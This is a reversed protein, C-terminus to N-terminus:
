GNTVSMTEDLRDSLAELTNTLTKLCNIRMSDIHSKVSKRETKLMSIERELEEIRLEDDCACSSDVDSPDGKSTFGEDEFVQKLDKEIDPKRWGIEGLKPM